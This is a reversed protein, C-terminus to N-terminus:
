GDFDPYRELKNFAEESLDALKQLVSDTLSRLAEEDETLFSSMERLTEETEKKTDRGYICLMNMEDRTFERNM